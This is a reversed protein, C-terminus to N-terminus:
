NVGCPQASPVNGPCGEPWVTFAVRGQISYAAIRQRGDGRVLWAAFTVATDNDRPHVVAYSNLLRADREFVSVLDLQSVLQWFTADDSLTYGQRENTQRLTVSMGQGSVVLHAPTPSVGAANWLLREREHTGSEDGRSVFTAGSAAIRRFADVVDAADGVKAPDNRPGVIVFRNFAIKQYAWRTHEALYRTETEPAHSMVLDVVGDALMKLARGSGAAHVRVTAEEFPPLLVELLGSNQVSTTTAIDLYSKPRSCAVLLLFVTSTVVLTSLRVPMAGSVPTM